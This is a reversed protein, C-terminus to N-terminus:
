KFMKNFFYIFNASCVMPRIAQNYIRRWRQEITARRWDSIGIERLEGELGMGLDAVM